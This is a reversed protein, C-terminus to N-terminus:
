LVYKLNFYTLYTIGYDIIKNAINVSNEAREGVQLLLLIIIVM